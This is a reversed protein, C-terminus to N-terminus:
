FYKFTIDYNVTTPYNSVYFVYTCGSWCSDPSNIACSVGSSFLDGPISGYNANTNGGVWNVKNASAQPVALWLYESDANYDNIVIDYTSYDVIKSGNSILINGITPTSGSTGYFIPLVGYITCSNDATTGSSCCTTGSSGDSNLPYDGAAYTVSSYFTNIGDLVQYSPFVAVNSLSSSGSYWSYGYIDVYNYCEPLGTRVSSGGCFVPSVAGQYYTTCGTFAITDGVEFVEDSPTISFTSSNGTCIPSTVPALIEELICTAELGFIASGVALGGVTYTTPSAGNYITTAGSISSPALILSNEISSYTLVYGDTEGTVIVPINGGDGTLSLGSISNIITYGDLTLTSGTVQKFQIDDLNPRSFFSM